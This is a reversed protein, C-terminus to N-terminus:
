DCGGADCGGGDDGGFIVGSSWDPAYFRREPQEVIQEALPVRASDVLEDLPISYPSQTM